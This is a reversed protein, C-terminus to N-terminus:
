ILINYIPKLDPEFNPKTIQVPMNVISAECVMIFTPIHRHSIGTIPTVKGRKLAPPVDKSQVYKPNATTILIFICLSSPLM